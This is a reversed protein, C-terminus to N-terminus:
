DQIVFFFFFILPILGSGLSKKKRTEELIMVNEKGLGHKWNVIKIGLLIMVLASPGALFISVYGGMTALLRPCVPLSVLHLDWEIHSIGKKDSLM